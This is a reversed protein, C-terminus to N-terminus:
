ISGHGTCATRKLPNESIGPAMFVWGPLRVHVKANVDLSNTGQNYHLTGDETQAKLNFTGIVYKVGV